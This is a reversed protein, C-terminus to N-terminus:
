AVEEMVDILIMRNFVTGEKKANKLEQKYRGQLQLKKYSSETSM